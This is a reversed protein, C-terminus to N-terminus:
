IIRHSPSFSQRHASFCLVAKKTHTQLDRPLIINDDVLLCLVPSDIDQVGRNLFWLSSWILSALWCAFLVRVVRNLKDVERYRFRLHLTLYREVAIATTTLFSAVVVTSGVFNSGIGAICYLHYNSKLAVLCGVCLDSFALSFLLAKSPSHLSYCRRLADIILINGFIAM